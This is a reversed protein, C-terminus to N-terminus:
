RRARNVLPSVSWAETLNEWEAKKAQVLQAVAAIVAGFVLVKFLKKM